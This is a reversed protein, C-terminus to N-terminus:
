IKNLRYVFSEYPGVQIETKLEPAVEVNALLLENEYDHVIKDSLM